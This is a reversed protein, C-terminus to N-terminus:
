KSYIRAEFRSWDFRPNLKACVGGVAGVIAHKQEDNLGFGGWVDSEFLARLSDALVIFDKKTMLGANNAKQSRQCAQRGNKTANLDFNHYFPPLLNLPM